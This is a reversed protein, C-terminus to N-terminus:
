ASGQPKQMEVSFRFEPVRYIPTRESSSSRLFCEFRSSAPLPKPGEKFNARKRGFMEVYPPGFITLWFLDPLNLQLNKTMHRLVTMGGLTSALGQLGLKREMYAPNAGPQMRLYDIREQVEPHTVIHAVSIDTGFTSAGELLFGKAAQTDGAGEAEFELVDITTHHPNRM